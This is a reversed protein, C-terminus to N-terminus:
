RSASDSSSPPAAPTGSDAQVSHWRGNKTRLHLRPVGGVQTIRVATPPTEFGLTAAAEAPSLGITDPALAPRDALREQSDYQPYGHFIMVIGSLFWALLVLSLAIGMYRHLPILVRQVRKKLRAM